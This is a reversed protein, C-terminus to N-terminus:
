KFNIMKRYKQEIMTCARRGSFSHTKVIFFLFQKLGLRNQPHQLLPKTVTVRDVLEALGIIDIYTTVQLLSFTFFSQYLLSFTHLFSFSTHLDLILYVGIYKMYIHKLSLQKVEPVLQEFTKIM